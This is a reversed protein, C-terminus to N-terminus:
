ALQVIPSIHRRISGADFAAVAVDKCIEFEAIGVYMREFRFEDTAPVRRGHKAVTVPEARALGTLRVSATNQM